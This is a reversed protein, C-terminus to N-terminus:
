KPAIAKNLTMTVGLLLDDMTQYLLGFDFDDFPTVFSEPYFARVMLPDYTPVSKGKEQPLIKYILPHVGAILVDQGRLNGNKFSIKIELFVTKDDYVKVPYMKADRSTIIKISKEKLHEKLYSVTYDGVKDVVTHPVPPEVGGETWFTLDLRKSSMNVHVVILQVDDYFPVPKPLPTPINASAMVPMFFLVFVALTALLRYM